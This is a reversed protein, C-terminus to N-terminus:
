GTPQFYHPTPWSSRPSRRWYADDYKARWCAILADATASNLLVFARSSEVIDLGRRTVQDRLAVQYQLVTNANQRTTPFLRGKTGPRRQPRAERAKM